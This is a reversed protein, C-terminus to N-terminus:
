YKVAGQRDTQNAVDQWAENRKNRNYYNKHNKEYLIPKERVAKILKLYFESEVKQGM